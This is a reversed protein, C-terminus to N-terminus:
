IVSDSLAPGFIPPLHLCLAIWLPRTTTLKTRHTKRKNMLPRHKRHHYYETHDNLIITKLFQVSKARHRQWWCTVFLCEKTVFGAQSLFKQKPSFEREVNQFLHSTPNFNQAVQRLNAATRQFKTSFRCHRNPSNCRKAKGVKKVSSASVPQIIVPSQQWVGATRPNRRWEADGTSPRRCDTPRKTLWDTRRSLQPVADFYRVYTRRSRDALVAIETM